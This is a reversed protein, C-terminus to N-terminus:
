TVGVCALAFNGDSPTGSAQFTVKWDEKSDDLNFSCQRLREATAGNSDQVRARCSVSWTGLAANSSIVHVFVNEGDEVSDPLPNNVPFSSALGGPETSNFELRKVALPMPVLVRISLQRAKPLNDPDYIISCGTFGLWLMVALVLLPILFVMQDTM